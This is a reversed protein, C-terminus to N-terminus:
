GSGHMEAKYLSKSASPHKGGRGATSALRRRRRRRAMFQRQSTMTLRGRAGTMRWRLLALRRSGKAM